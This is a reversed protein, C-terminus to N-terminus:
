GAANFVHQGGQREGAMNHQMFYNIKGTAQAVQTQKQKKLEAEKMESNKRNFWVEIDVRLKGNEDMIDEYDLNSIGGVTKIVNERQAAMAKRREEKSMENKQGQELQKKFEIVRVKENIQQKETPKNFQLETKGGIQTKNHGNKEKPTEQYFIDGKLLDVISDKILSGGDSAIQGSSRLLEGGWEDIGGMVGGIQMNPSVHNDQPKSAFPDLAKSDNIARNDDM